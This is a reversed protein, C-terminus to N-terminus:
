LKWMPQKNLNEWHEWREKVKDAIKNFRPDGRVGNLLTDKEMTTWDDFGNDAAKQLSEIAKEKKDWAAYCCGLRYYLSGDGPYLRLWKSIAEEAAKFKGEQVLVGGLIYYAWEAQENDAQRIWERCEKEAEALRGLKYYYIQALYTHRM